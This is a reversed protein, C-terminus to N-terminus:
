WKEEEGTNENGPRFQERSKIKQEQREIMMNAIILGANTDANDRLLQRLKSENIDMRYLISILKQFDQNLLENIKSALFEVGLNDQRTELGLEREIEQLAENMKIFNCNRGTIGPPTKDNINVM